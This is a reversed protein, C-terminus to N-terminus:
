PQARRATFVFHRSVLFNVIMGSLSGAAVGIVLAIPATGHVRVYAAYVAYNVAGGALNFFLFKLWERGV